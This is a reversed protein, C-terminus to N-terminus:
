TENVDTSQRFHGLVRGLKLNCINGGVLGILVQMRSIFSKPVFLQVPHTGAKSIDNNPLLDAVHM